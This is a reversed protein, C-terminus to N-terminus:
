IEITRVKQMDSLWPVFKFNQIHKADIAANDPLSFVNAFLNKNFLQSASLRQTSFSEQVSDVEILILKRHESAIFSLARLMSTSKEKKEGRM